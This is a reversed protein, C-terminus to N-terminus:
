ASSSTRNATSFSRPASRNIHWRHCRVVSSLAGGRPIRGFSRGSRYQAASGVAPDSKAFRQRSAGIDRASPRRTPLIFAARRVRGHRLRIRNRDATTVSGMDAHTDWRLIFSGIVNEMHVDSCCYIPQLPRCNNHQPPWVALAYLRHLNVVARCPM